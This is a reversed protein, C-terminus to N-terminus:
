LRRPRGSWVPLPHLAVPQSGPGAYGGAPSASPATALDRHWEM